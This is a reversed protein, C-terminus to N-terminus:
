HLQQFASVEFSYTSAPLGESAIVIPAGADIASPVLVEWFYHDGGSLTPFGSAGGLEVTLAGKATRAYQIHRRRIQATPGEALVDILQQANFSGVVNSVKAMASPELPHLREFTLRFGLAKSVKLITSLAPDRAGSLAKYLSERSLGSDGAIRAMMVKARAVNGLAEAVFAGDDGSEAIAEQLYLLAEEDSRLYDATDYPAVILKDVGKSNSM